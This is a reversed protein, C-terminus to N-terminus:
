VATFTFGSSFGPPRVRTERQDVTSSPRRPVHTHLCLHKGASGLCGQGAGASVRERGCLHVPVSGHTCCQRACTYVRRVSACVPGSPFWMWMTM